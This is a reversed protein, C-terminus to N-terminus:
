KCNGGECKAKAEPAKAKADSKVEAKPEAAKAAPKASAEFTDAKPQAKLEAPATAVKTEVAKPANKAEEGKFLPMGKKKFLSQAQCCSLIQM